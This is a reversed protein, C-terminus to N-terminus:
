SPSRDAQQEVREFTWAEGPVASFAFGSVRGERDLRFTVWGPGAAARWARDTWPVRFTDFHWPELRGSLRGMRFVLTGNELVIQARGLTPHIFEGVYSEMARSPRTDAIRPPEASVMREVQEALARFGATRDVPDHGLLHDLVPYLIWYPPAVTQLNMLMAVGLRQEPVLAVLSTMGDIGGGHDLMTVGRYRSVVWGMAYALGAGADPYFAALPGEPRMVIQPRRTERLAEREVLRRGGVAGDALQFRLWRAMDAAGSLIAGAPGLADIDRYPVIDVAGEIRAHPTAVNGVEALGSVGTRTRAMGIPALLREAVFRDWPVGTRAALIRGAVLYLVNQYALTTRFGATAELHRLREVLADADHQGTLWMLNAMPLGSRHALLDRITIQRTVWPDALRFDPLHDVVPDDWGLLGDGVLMALATSTFAKTTSGIAFLTAEDVPTPRGIERVGFGRVLLISDNRVVAVALGPIEWAQRIREIRTELDALGPRQIAAAPAALILAALAPGLAAVPRLATM